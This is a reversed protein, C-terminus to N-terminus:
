LFFFQSPLEDTTPSQPQPQSQPDNIPAGIYPLNLLRHIAPVDYASSPASAHAAGVGVLMAMADASLAPPPPPPQQQQPPPLLIPQGAGLAALDLATVGSAPGGPAGLLLGASLPFPASAGLLALAGADVPVDGAAAEEEDASDTGRDAVRFRVTALAHFKSLSISNDAPAAAVFERHLTRLPRDLVRRGSGDDPHARTALFQELRRVFEDSKPRKSPPVFRARSRGSAAYDATDAIRRAEKLQHNGFALGWRQKLEGGTFVGAALALVQTRQEAEAADHMARINAMVLNLESGADMQGLVARMGQTKALTDRLLQACEGAGSEGDSVGALECLARALQARRRSQMSASCESYPQGTPAADDDDDGRRRKRPSM